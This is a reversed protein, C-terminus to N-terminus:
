SSNKAREFPIRRIKKEKVRASLREYHSVAETVIVGGGVKRLDLAVPVREGVYRVIEEMNRLVHEDTDDKEVMVYIIRRGLEEVSKGRKKYEEILERVSKASVM